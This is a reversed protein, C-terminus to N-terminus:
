PCNEASDCHLARSRHLLKKSGIHTSIRFLRLDRVINRDDTSRIKDARTESRGSFRPRVDRVNNACGFTGSGRQRCGLTGVALGGGQRLKMYPVGTSNPTLPSLLM